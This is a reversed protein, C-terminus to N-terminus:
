QAAEQEAEQRDLCWEWYGLRTDGNGVAYMWDIVPYDPHEKWYGHIRALQQAPTLITM